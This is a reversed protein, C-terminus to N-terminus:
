RSASEGRRKTKRRIGIFACLSAAMLIGGLRAWYGLSMMIPSEFAGIQLGPPEESHGQVDKKEAFSISPFGYPVFAAWRNIGHKRRGPVWRDEERLMALMAARISGAVPEGAVLREYFRAMLDGAAADNVPWQSLLSCPTGATLLARGLGVVGEGAIVGTATDCASLVVLAARMKRQAIEEATLIVGARVAEEASFARSMSRLAVPNRAGYTLAPQPKQDVPVTSPADLLHAALLIGGEEYRSNVFGHTALHVLCSSDFNALFTADKTPRRMYDADKGLMVEVMGFCRAAQLIDAVRRAEKEAYILDDLEVTRHEEIGAVLAVPPGAREQSIRAQKRALLACLM